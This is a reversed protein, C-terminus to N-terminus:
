TNSQCKQTRTVAECLEIFRSQTFTQKIKNIDKHVWQVNQIAYGKTNDIRDLSASGDSFAIPLGSLSCKRDQEMYLKDLDEPTLEIAIDRQEANRILSSWYSKPINGHGQWNRKNQIGSRCGCTKIKGQRLDAGRCFVTNGCVCQCKWTALKGESGARELVTLSGFTMDAMDKTNRGGRKVRKPKIGHRKCFTYVCSVTAHSLEAIETCSMGKECCNEVFETSLM